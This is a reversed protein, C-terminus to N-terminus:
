HAPAGHTGKDGFVALIHLMGDRALIALFKSYELVLVKIAKTSKWWKRADLEPTAVAYPVLTVGKLEGKLELLARPMHYDSTVVILSSYGKAKAWSSIEKANGLTTLAEFGLDVCCDYLRKSGDTVARLENRKVKLDVGSILMRAGKRRELLRMGERLRQDSAGTLVVIADQAQAPEVAPTSDVVRDVFVLLGAGWFLLALMLATLSRLHKL